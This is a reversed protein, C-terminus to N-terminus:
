LGDDNSIFLVQTILNTNQPIRTDVPRLTFASAVLVSQQLGDRSIRRASFLFHFKKIQIPRLGNFVSSEFFYASSCRATVNFRGPNRKPHPQSESGNPPSKTIGL